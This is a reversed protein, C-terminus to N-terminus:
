HFNEDCNVPIYVEDVLHWPLATPISFGNFINIISREHVSVVAARFMHEQTSITDDAHSNYYRSYEKNIHSKFLCNVTTYRYQDMSRQKSKKRLYDFIVDIHLSHETNTMPNNGKEIWQSFEDMMGLPLQELIGCGEFPYLPLVDDDIKAKGKDNSGFDTSYPSRIIRSPMRHQPAPTKTDPPLSSKKVPLQTPLQSDSLWFASEILEGHSMLCLPQVNNEVETSTDVPFLSTTHKEINHQLTDVDHEDANLIKTDSHSAEGTTYDEIADEMHQEKSCDIHNPSVSQQDVKDTQEDADVASGGIDQDVNHKPVNSVNDGQSYPLDPTYVNQNPQKEAITSKSAKTKHLHVVKRRKPPPTSRTSSVGTSRRLLQDPPESSFDEFGPVKQPKGVDINVNSTGPEDHTVHSPQPLQMATCEEGTPQINTYNHETFVSEMFMEFKPKEAMVKWNVIRPIVNQEKVAISPLPPRSIAMALKRGRKKPTKAHAEKQTKHKKSSQNDM